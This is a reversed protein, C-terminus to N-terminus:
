PSSRSLPLGASHSYMWFFEASSNRPTFSSAACTCSPDSSCKVFLRTCDISSRFPRLTRAGVRMPVLNRVAIPAVGTCIGTGCTVSDSDFPTISPAIIGHSTAGASLSWSTV